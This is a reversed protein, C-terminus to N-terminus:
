NRPLNKKLEELKEYFDPTDYMYDIIINRIDKIIPTETILASLSYLYEGGYKYCILDPNKKDCNACWKYNNYRRASYREYKSLIIKDKTGTSKHALCNPCMSKCNTILYPHEKHFSLECLVKNKYQETFERFCKIANNLKRNDREAKTLPLKISVIMATETTATTM